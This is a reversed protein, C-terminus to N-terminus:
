GRGFKAVFADVFRQPSDADMNFYLSPEILELEMLAFGSASEQIRVYDLRAYLTTDPMAALTKEAIALLAPEPHIAQLQGGHEEQVRFDEAKPRKLIAHSFNGGFYFLSYEGEAIVAEVFPQIMHERQEFLESLTELDYRFGAKTLRFTDDANASLLPKVVLEECGFEDFADQLVDAEFQRQWLTPVIPIGAKQMEKLYSKDLNWRVLPLPNELVTGSAVIRELCAMFAKPDKQYDWPSRIVVVDYTSWDVTKDRWSVAETHWGAEAMPQYCLEDYVFYGELNDMSLFACRKM